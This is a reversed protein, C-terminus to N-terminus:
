SSRHAPAIAPATATSEQDSNTARDGNWARLARIRFASSRFDVSCGWFGAASLRAPVSAPAVAVFTSSIHMIRNLWGDPIELALFVGGPRLVRRVESFALDQQERSRLHHLMLVAIASSFTADAFPLTSADAQVLTGKAALRPGAGTRLRLKALSHFEYELSTVRAVRERLAATASGTGAGLELLHDGLNSGATLWPLLQNCTIWRWLRSGCFRNELANMSFQLRWPANM